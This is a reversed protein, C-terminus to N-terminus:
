SVEELKQKMHEIIEDATRTEEPRPNVIDVWRIKQYSGGAYKATNESILRAADTMYVRYSYDEAEQKLLAPLVAM